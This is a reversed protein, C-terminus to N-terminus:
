NEKGLGFISKGKAHKLKEVDVHLTQLAVDREDGYQGHMKVTEVLKTFEDQLVAIEKKLTMVEDQLAERKAADQQLELVDGETKDMRAQHEDLTEGHKVGMCLTELSLKQLHGVVGIMQGHETELKGIRDGYQTRIAALGQNLHEAVAAVSGYEQYKDLVTTREEMAAEKAAVAAAFENPEFSHQFVTDVFADFPADHSKLNYLQYAAEVFTPITVVSAHNSVLMTVSGSEVVLFLQGALNCVGDFDAIVLKQYYMSKLPRRGPIVISPDIDLLKLAAQQQDSTPLHETAISVPKNIALLSELVDHNDVGGM